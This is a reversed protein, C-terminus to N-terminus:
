VRHVGRRLDPGARAPGGARAAGRPVGRAAGRLRGAGPGARGARGRDARGVRGGGGRDGGGGRARGRRGGGAGHGLRPCGRGRGQVPEVLVAAIPADSAAAQEVIRAAAALAAKGVEEPGMDSDLSDAGGGMAARVQEAWRYVYPYPAFRVGHYLQATFPARFEPRWTTALAGYTLGHYAGTFALVGPRGTRMVATKLAAEVAEAGASALITVGLEGPALEALRELLAVKADAPHVDGLAHPLREAQRALARAVRENAH